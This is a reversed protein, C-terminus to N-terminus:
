MMLKGVIGTAKVRLLQVCKRQYYEHEKVSVPSITWKNFATKHVTM